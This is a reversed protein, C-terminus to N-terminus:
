TRIVLQGLFSALSCQGGFFLGFGFVIFSDTAQQPEQLRFSSQRQPMQSRTGTLFRSSRSSTQFRAPPQQSYQRIGCDKSGIGNSTTWTMAVCCWPSAVASLRQTAHLLWLSALREPWSLSVRRTTRNNSGRRSRQNTWKRHFPATSTPLVGRPRAVTSTSAM